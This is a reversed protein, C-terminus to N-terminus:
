QSSPYAESRDFAIEESGEQYHKKFIAELLRSYRNPERNKM